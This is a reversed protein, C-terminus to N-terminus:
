HASYVCDLKFVFFHESSVISVTLILLLLTCNLMVGFVNYTM